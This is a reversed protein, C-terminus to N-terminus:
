SPGARAGCRRTPSSAGARGRACTARATRRGRSTARRAPSAWCTSSGTTTRSWTTTTSRGTWSRRTRRSRARERLPSVTESRMRFNYPTLRWSEMGYHISTGGVANVMSIAIAPPGAPDAATPRHTPMERAFKIRALWSRIDNRIEDSPFDRFSLRPGAELGIVKLGSRALPLAATGGAAGLGVIVVDTKKLRTAM